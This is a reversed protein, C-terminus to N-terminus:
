RHRELQTRWGAGPPPLPLAPELPSDLTPDPEGEQEDRDANAGTVLVALVLASWINRDWIAPTTPLMSVYAIAAYGLGRLRGGVFLIRVLSYLMLLFFILGPIGLALPIQLLVNHTLYDTKRFGEGWIPHKLYQEWSAHFGQQRAQDSYASSLGGHFLRNLASGKGFTETLWAMSLIGVFGGVVLVTVSTFSREVIPYFVAIVFVALLATRSGSILVCVACIVGAAWAYPRQKDYERGPRTALYLALACGFSGDMGLYDPHQTLGIRRGQAEPGVFAAVTNIVEGVVYAWALLDIRFISPRYLALGLPLIATAFILRVGENASEGPAGSVLTTLITVASLGAIAFGFGSPLSIHQTVRKPLLMGFGLVYFIDAVTLSGGLRLGDLPGFLTALMLSAFGVAETGFIAVVAFGAALVVVSLGVILSQTAAATLVTTLLGLLVACVAGASVHPRTRLM